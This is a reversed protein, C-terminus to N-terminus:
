KQLIVSRPEVRSLSCNSRRPFISFQGFLKMPSANPSAASASFARRRRSAAACYSAKSDIGVHRDDGIPSCVRLASSLVRRRHAPKGRDLEQLVDQFATADNQIQRALYLGFVVSIQAWSPLRADTIPEVELNEIAGGAADLPNVKRPVLVPFVFIKRVGRLKHREVEAVSFKSGQRMTLAYRNRIRGIRIPQVMARRKGRIRNGDAKHAAAVPLRPERLM